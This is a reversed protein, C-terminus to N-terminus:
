KKQTESYVRCIYTACPDELICFNNIHTPWLNSAVWFDVFYLTTHNPLAMVKEVFICIKIKTWIITKM